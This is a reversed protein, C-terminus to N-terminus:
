SFGGQRLSQSIAFRGRDIAPVSRVHSPHVHALSRPFPEDFHFRPGVVFLSAWFAQPAHRFVHLPRSVRATVKRWFHANDATAQLRASAFRRSVFPASELVLMRCNGTTPTFREISDPHFLGTKGPNRPASHSTAPRCDTYDARDSDVSGAGVVSPPAHM